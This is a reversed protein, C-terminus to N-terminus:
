FTLSILIGPFFFPNRRSPNARLACRGGDVVYDLGSKEKVLNEQEKGKKSNENSISVGVNLM